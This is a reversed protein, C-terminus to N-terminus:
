VLCGSILNAWAPKGKARETLPLNMELILNTAALPLGAKHVRLVRGVREVRDFRAEQLIGLFGGTNDESRQRSSAAATQM